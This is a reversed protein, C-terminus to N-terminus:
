EADPVVTCAGGCGVQRRSEGRQLAREGFYEGKSLRGVDAGKNDLIKVTGAVVVYFYDSKDGVRFIDTDARAVYPKLCDALMSLEADSVTGLFAVGDLLKEYMEKRRTNTHVVIGLYSTRDLVWFLCDTRAHFTRPSLGEHLLSREGFSSGTALMLIDGDGSEAACQGSELVFFHSTPNGKAVIDTGAPFPRRKVANIVMKMQEPQLNTFLDISRIANRILEHSKPSKKENAPEFVAQEPGVDALIKRRPRKQGPAESVETRPSGGAPVDAGCSACVTKSASALRLELTALRQGLVDRNRRERALSVALKQKELETEALALKAELLAGMVQKKEAETVYASAELEDRQVKLTDMAGDQEALSVKADCLEQTLRLMMNPSPAEGPAPPRAVLINGAGEAEDVRLGSLVSRLNELEAEATSPRGGQLGGDLRSATRGLRGALVMGRVTSKLGKPKGRAAGGADGRETDAGAEQARVEASSIGRSAMIAQVTALDVGERGDLITAIDEDSPQQDFINMIARLEQQDAMGNRDDDFLEFADRVSMKQVGSRQSAPLGSSPSGAPPTRAASASSRRRSASSRRRAAEPENQLLQQRAREARTKAIRWMQSFAGTSAMAAEMSVEKIKLLTGDGGDALLSAALAAQKAGETSFTVLAWSKNIGPRDRVTAQLFRGFPDFLEHLADEQELRGGLNGVHVTCGEFKFDDFKGDDGASNRSAAGTSLAVSSATSIRRTKQTSIRRTKRSQDMPSGTESVADGHLSEAVSPSQLSSMDVESQEDKQRTDLERFCKRIMIRDEPPVRTTIRNDFLDQWGTNTMAALAIGDIQRERFYPEYKSLRMERLALAVDNATHQELPLRRRRAAGAADADPLSAHAMEFSHNSALELRMDDSGGSMESVIDSIENDNDDDLVSGPLLWTVTIAALVTLPILTTEPQFVVEQTCPGGSALDQGVYDRLDFFVTAIMKEKNKKSGTAQVITLKAKKSEFENGGPKAKRLREASTILSLTQNMVILENGVRSFLEGDGAGVRQAADTFHSADMFTLQLPRKQMKALVDTYRLGLVCLQDVSHLVTGCRLKGCNDAASAPLVEDLYLQWKKTSSDFKEVLMVGTPGRAKFVVDAIQTRGGDSGAATLADEAARGSYAYIHSSGQGVVAVEDDESEEEGESDSGIFEDSEWRGRRITGDPYTVKGRGDFCNQSFEGDYVRGDPWTFRGIGSWAGAVYQGEYTGGPTTYTGVGSSM